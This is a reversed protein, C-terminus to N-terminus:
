RRWIFVNNKNNKNNNYLNGNTATSDMINKHM